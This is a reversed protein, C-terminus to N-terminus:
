GNEDRILLVKYTNKIYMIKCLRCEFGIPDYHTTNIRRIMVKRMRGGCKCKPKHNQDRWFYEYSYKHVKGDVTIYTNKKIM